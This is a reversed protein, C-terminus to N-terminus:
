MFIRRSPNPSFSASRNMACGCAGEGWSDAAGGGPAGGGPPMGGPGGGVPMGGPMSGIIIPPGGIGGISGIIIPPMGGISGIIIPPMGGSSVGSISAISSM